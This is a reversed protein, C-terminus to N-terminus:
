KKIKSTGVMTGMISSGILIIYFLIYKLKFPNSFILNLIILVLSFIFGLKLAEFLIKKSTKKGIYFGGIFLSIIPIIIKLISVFKGNIINFYSFITLLFTLLLISIFSYICGFGLKKFYKM